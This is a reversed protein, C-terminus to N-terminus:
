AIRDRAGVSRWRGRPKHWAPRPRPTRSAPRYRSNVAVSGVHIVSAGRADRLVPHLDRSLLIASTLQDRAVREWTADDYEVLPKRVNTGADHVLVHLPGRDRRRDRVDDRSAVDAVIGAGNLKAATAAVDTATRAVITVHAGLGALEEAIALGIGKTGGTVLATKGVLDWGTM